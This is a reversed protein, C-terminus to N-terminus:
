CSGLFLKPCANKQSYMKWSSWKAGIHSFITACIPLPLEITLQRFYNDIVNEIIKVLKHMAYGPFHVRACEM